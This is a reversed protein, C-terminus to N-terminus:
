NVIFSKVGDPHVLLYLGTSYNLLQITSQNIGPQTLIEEEQIVRGVSDIIKLKFSGDAKSNFVININGNTPNPLLQLQFEPPIETHGM